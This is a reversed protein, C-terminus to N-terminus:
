GQRAQQWAAKLQAMDAYREQKHRHM